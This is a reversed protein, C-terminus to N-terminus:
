DELHSLIYYDNYSLTDIELNIDKIKCFDNEFSWEDFNANKIEFFREGSKFSTIIVFIILIILIIIKIMRRKGYKIEEDIDEYENEEFFELM